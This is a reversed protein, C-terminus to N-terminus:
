STLVDLWDGESDITVHTTVDSKTLRSFLRPLTTRKLRRLGGLMWSM